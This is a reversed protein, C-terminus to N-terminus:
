TCHEVTCGFIIVSEKYKRVNVVIKVNNYHM